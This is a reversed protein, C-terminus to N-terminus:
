RHAQQANPYQTVASLVTAAAPGLSLATYGGFYFLPHTHAHPRAPLHLLQFSCLRRGTSPANLAPEHEPTALLM